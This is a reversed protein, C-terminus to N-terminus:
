KTRATKRRPAATATEGHIRRTGGVGVTTEYIVLAGRQLGRGVDASASQLIDFDIDRAPTLHAPVIVVIVDSRSAAESTNTTARLRGSAHLDAILSGLGPEEYPCKGANIDNVLSVNVDAVTVTAGHKGLVCALPLGM